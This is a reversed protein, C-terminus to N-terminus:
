IYECACEGVAYQALLLLRSLAMTLSVGRANLWPLRSDRFQFAELLSAEFRHDLLLQRARTYDANDAIGNTVDFQNTFAALASFNFLQIFVWIRHLWDAQRYRLNYAVQSAWIWWVLLFFSLYSIADDSSLVPTGNRCASPDKLM